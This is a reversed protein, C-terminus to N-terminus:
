PSVAPVLTFAPNTTSDEPSGLILGVGLRDDGVRPAGVERM